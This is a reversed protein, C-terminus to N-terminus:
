RGGFISRRLAALRATVIRAAVIITALVVAALSALFIATARRTTEFRAAGSLAAKIMTRRFRGTGGSGASDRFFGNKERALREGLITALRLGRGNRGDDRRVRVLRL